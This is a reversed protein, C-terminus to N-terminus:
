VNQVFKSDGNSLLSLVKDHNIKYHKIPPCGIKKDCIINAKILNNIAGEVPRRGLNLQHMIFDLQCPFFDGKMLGKDTALEENYVLVSLIVAENLGIVRILTKSVFFNEM